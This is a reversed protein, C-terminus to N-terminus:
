KAGERAQYHGYTPYNNETPACWHIGNKIVRQVKENYYSPYTEHGPQFYFIKGNGRRYTCGSR